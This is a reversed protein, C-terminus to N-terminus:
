AQESADRRFPEDWADIRLEVLPVQAATLGYASLFAAHVRREFGACARCDRAGAALTPTAICCRHQPSTVYFVAEILRPLSAKWDALQKDHSANWRTPSLIVENYASWDAPWPNLQAATAFM